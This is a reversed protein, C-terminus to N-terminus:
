KAPAPAGAAGAAAGAKGVKRRIVEGAYKIGKGKYPEPPRFSRLQAACQGVAQRDIGKVTIITQKDIKATVGKPLKFEVPHSFGLALVVTDGKVEAKYGVGSIELTREYGQTVGHVMNALLARTLGMFGRNARTVPPAGIRLVQGDQTVTAGEPLTADLQGLPGQVRVTGATLDVKVQDPIQIPKRGVRSM